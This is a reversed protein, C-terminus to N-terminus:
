GGNFREVASQPVSIRYVTAGFPSSGLYLIMGNELTLRHVVSRNSGRILRVDVDKIRNNLLAEKVATPGCDRESPLGLGHFAAFAEQPNLDYITLLRLAASEIGDMLEAKGKCTATPCPYNDPYWEANGEGLLMNLEDNEGVIRVASACEQCAIIIV